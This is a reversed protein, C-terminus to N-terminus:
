KGLIKNEIGQVFTQIAASSSSQDGELYWKYDVSDKRTMVYIYGQDPVMAGIHENKRGFLEIPISSQLYAAQTYNDASLLITFNFGNITTPIAGEIQTTDKRMTSNNLLYFHAKSGAVVFGGTRGAVLYDGTVPTSNNKDKKCGVAFLAIATVVPMLYKLYPKM